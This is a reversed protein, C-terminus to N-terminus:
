KQLETALNQYLSALYAADFAGRKNNIEESTSSGASPGMTKLTGSEAMALMLSRAFAAAAEDHMKM